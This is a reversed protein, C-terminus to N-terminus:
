KYFAEKLFAICILTLKRTLYHSLFIPSVGRIIWGAHCNRRRAHDAREPKTQAFRELGQAACSVTHSADAQWGRAFVDNAVGADHTACSSEPAALVQSAVAQIQVRISPLRFSLRPCTKRRVNNGSMLPLLLDAAHASM